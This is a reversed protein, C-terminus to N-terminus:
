VCGMSWFVCGGPGQALAASFFGEVCTRHSEGHGTGHRVCRHCREGPWRMACPASDSLRQGGHEARSSTASAWRLSASDDRSPRSDDSPRRSFLLVRVVGQVGERGWLVKGADTAHQLTRLVADHDCVDALALLVGCACGWLREWVSVSVQVAVCCILGIM